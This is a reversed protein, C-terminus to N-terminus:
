TSESESWDQWGIYEWCIPASAYQCYWCEFEWRAYRNSWKWGIWDHFHKYHWLCSICYNEWTRITKAEDSDDSMCYEM